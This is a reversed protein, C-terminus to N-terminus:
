KHRHKSRTGQRGGIGKQGADTFWGPRPYGEEYEPVPEHQYLEEDDLDIERKAKIAEPSPSLTQPQGIESSKESTYKDSSIQTKDTIGDNVKNIGENSACIGEFGIISGPTTDSENSIEEHELTSIEASRSSREAVNEQTGSNHRLIRRLTSHLWSVLWSIISVRLIRIPPDQSIVQTSSDSLGEKAEGAASEVTREIISVSEKPGVYWERPKGPRHVFSPQCECEIDVPLQCGRILDVNHTLSDEIGGFVITEGQDTKAVLQFFGANFRQFDKNAWM